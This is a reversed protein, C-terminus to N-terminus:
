PRQYRTTRKRKTCCAEILQKYVEFSETKLDCYYRGKEDRIRLVIICNVFIECINNASESSSHWNQAIIYDFLPVSFVLLVPHEM